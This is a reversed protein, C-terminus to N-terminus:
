TGPGQELSWARCEYLCLCRECIRKAARSKQGHEPFWTVTPYERCLADKQWAPRGRRLMDLLDGYESVEDSALEPRFQAPM